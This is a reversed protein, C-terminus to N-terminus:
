FVVELVATLSRFNPYQYNDEGSLIGGVEPDYGRYNTFTFLNRGTLSVAASELGLGALNSLMDSDLSYRLGLERVKVFTADEVYHSNDSNVNYVDSYYGVPKKDGDALGSQDAEGGRWERMAWQRTGNYRETGFEGDLLVNLTLNNWRFSNNWNLNYEPLGYGMRLFPSCNNEADLGKIPRGWGYSTTAGEGGCAPMDDSATGWLQKAIGDTASNGTGVYVFYGDSNTAFQSCDTGTPLDACSTAWRDGYFTGISEGERIYRPGSRWPPRNLETISQRSRDYNLATTWTMDPRDIIPFDISAEYTTSELAGANQYQGTFGAYGPLPVNLLQDTISNDAYVLQVFAKGMVLMELGIEQEVSLQPKLANNGLQVPQIAGNVASVSYTEYQWSFGPRGGASGISYRLKFEDLQEVPWWEEEAMRWGGSARYYTAWRADPGFLSSGDRRVLFDGLYKGQFDLNTIFFYGEAVVDSIFSAASRQEPDTNNFQPIGAVTFNSGTASFQEFHGDELVYRLKTRTTLDGFARNFSATLYANVDDDKSNYRYLSGVSRNYDSATPYSHSNVYGQPTRDFAHFDNREIALSGELEFWDTLSLRANASAMFRQRREDYELNELPYLPNSQGARPDPNLYLCGGFEEAYRCEMDEANRAALDVNPGMFTLNFFSGEADDQISRAYYTSISLDLNDRLQSDLNVRFTRRGFGDNGYFLENGPLIGGDRSNSFSVRYNTSGTRGEAAVYQTYTNGPDFFRDVQDYLTGPYPNDQFSTFPTGAEGPNFENDLVPNGTTLDFFDVPTGDNNVFLGNGDVKYPHYSTLEISGELQNQGYENRVSVRAQDITLGAGRRTRVEIVGNAARSGYLSAAAAGKVLEISEVDLADIDAMTNDSVVGDIIMLPANTTALGTPARLLTSSQEGPRGSSSQVKVGAVRGQLLGDASPAPVPAEEFDVKEVTFSLKIRPTEGAVGTAIIEQLTLVGEELRVEVNNTEGAIVTIEQTHDRYGILRVHLEHTGAPINVLVFRGDNNSLWGDDQLAPISLHVSELTQESVADMVTGTVTGTQAQVGAATAALLALSTALPALNKGWNQM